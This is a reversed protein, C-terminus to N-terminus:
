GCRLRTITTLWSLYLLSVCMFKFQNMNQSSCMALHLSYAALRRGTPVQPQTMPPPRSKGDSSLEAVHERPWLTLATVHVQLAPILFDM